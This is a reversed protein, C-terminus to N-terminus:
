EGKRVHYMIANVLDEDRIDKLLTERILDYDLDNTISYGKAIFKMLREIQRSKTTNLENLNIITSEHNTVKDGLEIEVWGNKLEPKVWKNFNPLTGEIAKFVDVGNVKITGNVCDVKIDDEFKELEHEAAITNKNEKGIKHNEWNDVEDKWCDLISWISNKFWVKDGVKYKM